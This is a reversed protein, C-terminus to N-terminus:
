LKKPPPSPPIESSTTITAFQSAIESPMINDDLFELYSNIDARAAPQTLTHPLSPPGLELDQTAPAQTLNFIWDEPSPESGYGANLALDKQCNGQTHIPM